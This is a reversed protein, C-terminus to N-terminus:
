EKLCNELYRMNQLDQYNAARNSDGFIEDLEQIIRKQADKQNALLMLAFTLGMATTDHGDTDNFDDDNFNRERERIVDTTFKHLVEVAQYQKRALPSLNFTLDTYYLPQVSRELTTKGFSHIANFYRNKTEGISDTNLGM